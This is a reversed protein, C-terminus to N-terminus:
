AKECNKCFGCGINFPLCVRDGVKIREVGAGTEVVVGLNEHGLIRGAGMNTRGEYMHLDSGCINTTTSKVLVDTPREIKPYDSCTRTSLARAYKACAAFGLPIHARQVEPAGPILRADALDAIVPVCWGKGLFEM